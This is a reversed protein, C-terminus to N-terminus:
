ILYFRRKQVMLRNLYHRHIRFYFMGLLCLYIILKLIVLIIICVKSPIFRHFQEILYKEFYYVEVNKIYM